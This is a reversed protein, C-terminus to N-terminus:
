SCHTSPKPCARVSVHACSVYGVQVTAHVRVTSVQNGSESVGGTLMVKNTDAFLALGADKVFTQTAVPWAPNSARTSLDVASGDVNTLSSLQAFPAGTLLPFM